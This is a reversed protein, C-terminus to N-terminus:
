NFKAGQLVTVEGNLYSKSLGMPSRILSTGSYKVSYGCYLNVAIESQTFESEKPVMDAKPQM